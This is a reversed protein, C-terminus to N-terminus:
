LRSKKNQTRTIMVQKTQQLYAIYEEVHEM